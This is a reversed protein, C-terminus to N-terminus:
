FFDKLGLIYDTSVDFFKALKVLDDYGPQCINTEWKQYNARSIGVADALKQQSINRLLRQELLIHSIDM